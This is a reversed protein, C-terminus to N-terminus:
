VAHSPNALVPLRGVSTAAVRPEFGYGVRGTREAEGEGRVDKGEVGRRSGTYLRWWLREGRMDCVGVGCPPRRSAVWSPSEDGKGGELPPFRRWVMWGLTDGDPELLGVDLALAVAAAAAM